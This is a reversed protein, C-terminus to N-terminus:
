SIANISCLAIGIKFASFDLHLGIIGVKKRKAGAKIDSLAMEWGDKKKSIEM